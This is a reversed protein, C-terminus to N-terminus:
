DLGRRFAVFGFLFRELPLGFLPELPQLRFRSLRFGLHHGGHLGLHLLHQRLFFCLKIPCPRRVRLHLLMFWYVYICVHINSRYQITPNLFAFSLPDQFVSHSSAPLSTHRACTVSKEESDGEQVPASFSSSASQQCPSTKLPPGSRSKMAPECRGSSGCRWQWHGAPKAPVTYIYRINLLGYVSTM